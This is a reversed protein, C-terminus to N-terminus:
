KRSTFQVTSLITDFTPFLARNSEDDQAKPFYVIYYIDENNKLGLSIDWDNADTRQIDGVIEAFTTFEDTSFESSRYAFIGSVPVRVYAPKEPTFWGMRSDHPETHIRFSYNSGDVVVRIGESDKHTSVRADAPYQFTIGLDSDTFTRWEKRNETSILQAEPFDTFENEGPKLHSSSLVGIIVLVSFGFLLLNRKM